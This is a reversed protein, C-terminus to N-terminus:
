RKELKFTIKSKDKPLSDIFPIAPSITIRVDAADAAKKIIDRASKVSAGAIQDKLSNEDIKPTLNARFRGTLILTDKQNKIAVELLEINEARAELNGEAKSQAASALYSKLDNEDFTLASIEIAMNLNILSAEEDPKKDFEKKVIKLTQAETYIKHGQSNANLDSSAKEKLTETLTKELRDLDEQSAVTIQKEDGGIFASQTVGSYFIEDFGVITLDVGSNINYNPGIDTATASAKNEGPTTASRSAVQIETDLTFKLGDKTIVQTGANFTKSAQKDWNLIKVEGKAKTGSKKSGTAVLKQNGEAKGAILASPIQGAAIDSSGAKVQAKFDAEQSQANVSIIVQASTLFQGAAFIGTIAFIFFAIIVIILSKRSPRFRFRPLLGKFFRGRPRNPESRNSAEPIFQAPSVNSADLEVAYEEKQDRQAPQNESEQHGSDFEPSNEPSDLSPEEQSQDEDSQKEQVELETDLIDKNAVFGFSDVVNSKQDSKIPKEDTSKEFDKVSGEISLEHGTVDAAQAFAVAQSLEDVNLLEIKPEHMFLGQWNHKSFQSNFSEQPNGYIVIRSPLQNNKEKLKQILGVVLATEVKSKESISSVVKNNNVLHVEGYNDFIGVLVANPTLNEEIKLFHNVATALSVFAQASLDLDRSLNNLLRATETKLDEKDFWNQSLGFVVKGVDASSTEIAKDIAVAAEHTLMEQSSFHKKATGSVKVENNQFHWVCATITDPSLVLSLYSETNERKDKSSKWGFKEKLLSLYNM